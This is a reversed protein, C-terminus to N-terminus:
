SRIFKKLWPHDALRKEREQQAWKKVGVWDANPNALFSKGYESLMEAYNKLAEDSLDDDSNPKWRDDNPNQFRVISRLSIHSELAGEHGLESSFEIKEDFARSRLTIDFMPPIGRDLKVVELIVVACTTAFGYIWPLIIVLKSDLDRAIKGFHKEVSKQVIHCRGWTIPPFWLQSADGTAMYYARSASECEKSAKIYNENAYVAVVIPGGRKAREEETYKKIQDNVRRFEERAQLLRKGEPSHPYELPTHM